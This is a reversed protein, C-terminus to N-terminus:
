CCCCCCQHSYLNICGSQLVTRLKRLFFFFVLAITHGLFGVVPCIGVVPRLEFLCMYGAWHENCCEKCYGPCSLLKSARCKQVSARHLRTCAWQFCSMYGDRELSFLVPCGNTPRHKARGHCICHETSAMASVSEMWNDWLSSNLREPSTSIM